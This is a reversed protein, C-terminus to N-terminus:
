VTMWRRCTSPQTTFSPPQAAIRIMYDAEGASLMSSAPIPVLGAANAAFFVAAYDFSNGMRIFVREGTQLGLLRFASSLRLV